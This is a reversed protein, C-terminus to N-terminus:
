SMTQEILAVQQDTLPVWIENRRFMSITFPPNYGWYQYGEMVDQTKLCSEDDGEDLGDHQLQMALAGVKDRAVDM